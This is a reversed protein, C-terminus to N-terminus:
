SAGAWLQPAAVLDPWRRGDGKAFSLRVRILQPLAPGDWQAVWAARGAGTPDGWYAFELAQVGRILEIEGPQPSAGASQEHRHPTWALVLRGYRLSLRIDARRSDGFGTPLDGVFALRDASGDFALAVPAAGAASGGSVQVPLDTFLGRLLRATTDLEATESSRRTQMSWFAFGSRVGQNLGVMLLALVTIAVLIELLTFGNEHRTAPDNRM